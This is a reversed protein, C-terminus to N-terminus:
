ATTKDSNSRQLQWCYGRGRLTEIPKLSGDPDLKKRLRRIFVEIVNSDREDDEAYIHETLRTKSLVEGAHLILYELLRYEYATLNIAKGNNSVIQSTTDLTFPGSVLESQTWRGSRRILARVRALLEEMQFPKTLYDDAGAELGEVKDQWRSRATLILVPYDREAARLQQIISIGDQGPLGLDIIAIDLPYECAMWGGETGEAATDVVYGNEELTTKLQLLLAQEDEIILARM